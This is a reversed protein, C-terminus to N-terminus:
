GGYAKKLGKIDIKKMQLIAKMVRDTKKVDKDQMMKALVTPVIQWSLGYKDKLWGYTEVFIKKTATNIMNSANHNVLNSKLM